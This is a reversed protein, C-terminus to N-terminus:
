FLRLVHNLVEDATTEEEDVIELDPAIGRKDILQEKPSLWHAITLKLATGNPFFSIEQMTGKGFSTEGAITAANHDQLAAAVIEAASASGRNILIFTKFNNLTPENLTYYTSGYDEDGELTSRHRTKAVISNKPLFYGAMNVAATVLGGGNNRLDLIIGRPHKAIIEAAVTSFEPSTTSDFQSVTVVAVNNKFDVGVSKIEIKSRVIEFSLEKEKRQVTIKVTTGAEGKILNAAENIMLDKINEDNVATIIDGARVGAKEAPSDRIPAIVVIEEDENQSLYVGIGEIEGSLNANTAQTEEPLLFESYPDDLSKVAGAIARQLMITENINEEFLFKNKIEDWVAELMQLDPINSYTGNQITITVPSKEEFNALNFLLEATESRSLRQTIGFNDDAIPNIIGMKVARFVWRALRHQPRVDSFGFEEDIPILSVGIGFIELGFKVAEGRTIPRNPLLKKGHFNDLIGLQDAEAIFPTFWANTPIDLFRTTINQPLVDKEIGAATMGMAFFEALSIPRKPYFNEGDNSIGREHLFEVAQFYPDDEVVDSFSGALSTSVTFLCLTFVLFIKYFYSM